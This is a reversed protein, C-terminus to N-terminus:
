AMLHYQLLFYTLSLILFSYVKLNELVARPSEQIHLIPPIDAPTEEIGLEQVQNGQQVPGLCRLPGTRCGCVGLNM